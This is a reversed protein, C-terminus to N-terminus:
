RGPPDGRPIILLFEWGRAFQDIDAAVLQMDIADALSTWRDDQVGRTAARGGAPTQHLRLYRLRGTDAGVVQGACAPAITSWYRTIHVLLHALKM